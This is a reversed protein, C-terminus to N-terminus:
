RVADAHSPALRGPPDHTPTLPPLHPPPTSWCFSVFFPSPLVGNTFPRPSPNTPSVRASLTKCFQHQKARSLLRSSPPLCKSRPITKNRKNEQLQAAGAYINLYSPRLTSQLDKTGARHDRYYQLTSASLEEKTQM